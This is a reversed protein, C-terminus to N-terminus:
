KKKHHSPSCRTNGTDVCEKGGRRRESRQVQVFFMTAVPMQELLLDEATQYKAIAEDNSAAPNGETILKDFAPNSFFSSNSGNPPLAATGFLDSSCVYSSWDSICM